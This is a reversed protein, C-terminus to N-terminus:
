QYHFRLQYVGGDIVKLKIIYNQNKKLESKNLPLKLLNQGYQFGNNMEFMSVISEELNVKENSETYVQVPVTDVTNYYNVIQMRLTDDKVVFLGQSLDKKLPHFVFLKDEKEKNNEEKCKISFKSSESGCISQENKNSICNQLYEVQWAYQTCTDLEIELPLIYTTTKIDGKEVLPVNNMLANEKNQGQNLQVLRFLYCDSSINFSPTPTWTFIPEIDEVSGSFPSVPHPCSQFSNDSVMCSTPSVEYLEIADIISVCFEYKNLPIISNYQGYAYEYLDSHAYNVQYPHMTSELNYSSLSLVQSPSMEIEKSMMSLTKKGEIFLEVKVKIRISNTTTNIYSGAFMQNISLQGPPITIVPHQVQAILACTGIIQSLLVFVLLYLIRSKTM